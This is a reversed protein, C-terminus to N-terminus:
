NSYEFNININRTLYPLIIMFNPTTEVTASKVGPLSDLYNIATSKSKIKIAEKISGTSINKGVKANDKVDLVLTGNPLDVSTLAYSIQISKDDLIAEDNGLKNTIYQKSFQSLESEEFGISFLKLKMTYQFNDVQDNANQSASETLIEDGQSKDFTKLKSDSVSKNFDDTGDKKIQDHLAQSANTLDADTVFKVTKTIGGTFAAKNTATLKGITLSSNAALNYQDGNQDSSVTADITGPTTDATFKGNILQPNSLTAGPVIVGKQLDFVKGDATTVKTGSSLVQSTTSISNSITITGSAKAGVDKTGTADFQKTESKDVEVIQGVLTMKDLNVGKENKDITVKYEDTQERSQVLLSVKAKPLIVFAAGLVALILIVFLVIMPKYNKRRMDKVKKFEVNKPLEDEQDSPEISVRHSVNKRYGETDESSDDEESEDVEVGENDEQSESKEAPDNMEDPELIPVEDERLNEFEPTDLDPSNETMGKKVTKPISEHENEHEKEEDTGAIDSLSYRRYTNVKLNLNKSADEVVEKKLVAKEADNVRGFVTIELQEALNKTASDTTVLAIAKKAERSSRKLLKLNVISQGLSSGRPIVFVVSESESHKMRKIVKTIEEDAEIYFVQNSM